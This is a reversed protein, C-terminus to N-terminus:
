SKLAKFSDRSFLNQASLFAVLCLFCLMLPIHLLNQTILWGSANQLRFLESIQDIGTVGMITIGLIFVAALAGQAREVQSIVGPWARGKNVWLSTVFVLIPTMQYLLFFVWLSHPLDLVVHGSPGPLLALALFLSSLKLSGTIAQRQSYQRRLLVLMQRYFIRTLSINFGPEVVRFNLKTQIKREVLGVCELTVFMFILMEFFKLVGSFFDTM